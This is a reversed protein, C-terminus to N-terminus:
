FGLINIENITKRKNLAQTWEGTKHGHQLSDINQLFNM